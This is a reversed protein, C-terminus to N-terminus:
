SEHPKSRELATIFFATEPFIVALEARDFGFWGPLRKWRGIAAGLTRAEIPSPAKRSIEPRVPTVTVPRLEVPPPIDSITTTPSMITPDTRRTSYLVTGKSRYLV